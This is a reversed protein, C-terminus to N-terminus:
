DKKMNMLEAIRTFNGDLNAQKIKGNQSAINFLDSYKYDYQQRSIINGNSTRRNIDKNVDLGNNILYRVINLDGNKVAKKLASEPVNEYVM